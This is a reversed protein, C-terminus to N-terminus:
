ILFQITLTTSLLAKYSIYQADMFHLIKKLAMIFQHGIWEWMELVDYTGKCDREFDLLTSSHLKIFDM